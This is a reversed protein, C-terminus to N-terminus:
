RESTYIPPEEPHSIHYGFLVNRLSPGKDEPWDILLQITRGQDFFFLIQEPDYHVSQLQLNVVDHLRLGNIFLIGQVDEFFFIGSSGRIDYSKKWDELVTNLQSILDSM